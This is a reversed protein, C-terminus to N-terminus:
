AALLLTETEPRDREMREAARRTLDPVERELAGAIAHLMESSPDKLGREVESLYQQSVGSRQAVDVLRDGRETREERLEHGLAERWLVNRPGSTRRSALEVLVGM